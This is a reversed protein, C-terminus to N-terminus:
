EAANPQKIMYQLTSEIERAFQVFSLADSFPTKETRSGLARLREWVSPIPDHAAAHAGKRLAERIAQQVFDLAAAPGKERAIENVENAFAANREDLKTQGELLMRAAAPDRRDPYEWNGEM